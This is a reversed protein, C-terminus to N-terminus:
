RAKLVIGGRGARLTITPGGGRVVGAARSEQRGGGNGAPADSPPATVTIGTKTLKEDVTLPGDVSLADVKFGGGPTTLEIPDSGENYIALPVADAQDVVIETQRGDIRTEARLGKLSVEGGTANIRVPGRVKDLQELHVEANRAEVELGGGFQSGRLEGGTLNFTADGRVNTIRAEVAAATQLRLSGVDDITLASARQSLSVAGPIKSVTTAGRSTGIALSAVNTATFAGSKADMRMGLHAPVKLTLTATQQGGRPFEVTLILLAGAEDTKFLDHTAKVLSEAEAKDYGNSRVFLDAHVDTRDEGVITVATSGSALRIERVTGPVPITTIKRGEASERNGRVERRVENLIRSLSFGPKSPDSPPATFQYVGFGVLAFVAILLLERKGM